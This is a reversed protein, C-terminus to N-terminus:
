RDVFNGAQAPAAHADGGLPQGDQPGDDSRGCLVASSMSRTTRASIPVTERWATYSARPVSM